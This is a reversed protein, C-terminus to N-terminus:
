NGTVIKAEIIYRNMLLSKLIRHNGDLIQNEENIIIPYEFSAEQARRIREPFLNPNDAVVFLSYLQDGRRWRTSYIDLDFIDVEEIIGPMNWLDEQNYKVDLESTRSEM